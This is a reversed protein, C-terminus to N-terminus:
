RRAAADALRVTGTGTALADPLLTAGTGTIQAAAACRCRIRRSVAQCRAAGVDALEAPEGSISNATTEQAPVFNNNFQLVQPVSGDPNGTTANVPIGMLYYGAGNVLYGNANMQFNGARTYDNVGNFVPQNDTFGTPKAVVFCGDGNIAMDTSVSTSQISGQM